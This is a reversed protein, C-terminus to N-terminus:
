IALFERVAQEMQDRDIVKDHLIPANRIEEIARPVATHSIRSLEDILAFDDMDAYKKDIAEM